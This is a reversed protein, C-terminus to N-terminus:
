VDVYEVELTHEDGLSTVNKVKFMSGRPLLVEAESSHNSHKQVDLAHAGKPLNIVLKINGGFGKKKSTSMFGNDLVVDGAKVTGGFISTMSGSSIGRRLTYPETLKAKRIANDLQKAMVAQGVSLKKGGRLAANLAGYAGDTYSDICAIEGATLPETLESAIKNAAAAKVSKAHEAQQLKDVDAFSPKLETFGGPPAPKGPKFDSVIGTMKLDKSALYDKVVDYTSLGSPLGTLNVFVKKGSKDTATTFLDTTGPTLLKVAQQVAVPSSPAAAIAKNNDKVGKKIAALMAKGAETQSYLKKKYASVMSASVSPSTGYIAQVAANIDPNSHKVAGATMNEKLAAQVFGAANAHKIHKLSEPVKGEGGAKGSGKSGFQGANGPQGRPHQSEKFEDAAIAGHAEDDEDVYEVASGRDGHARGNGARYGDLWERSHSLDQAKSAASLVKQPSSAPNLQPAKGEGGEEGGEAGEEGFAGGGMEGAGSQIDDSMKEIQEDTINTFIGTIDSSQKLEQAYTKQSIGGSNLAVTVTDVVTKALESKEKEDLVRVSPFALDLDDPVEGLESMCLVPYLKELQPRLDTEQERGIKEEYIREDADNSQGLGSITRGWLRTVPIEAAGSIDLQFQQYVDSLGAFTYQTSELGGEAPLPILSQNSMLQNIQEMREALKQKAGQAIGIGSILQALEPYKMGLINARFTLSLINWSMNDRKRIEEYVPELCSIGWWSQAEREPTPVEPGNFRLIRSSHVKFTEMNQNRVEYFEPKNFDTPRNIDTCVEGDPTIGAWRDFPIVGKYSNLKIDELELPEDLYQEQGDIVILAGAGGFLRAWQMTKLLNAKTYTKRVVKEINGIDEPSIDSTLRPWARIMDGAPVDVIRRSIWHNRYLTILKWYDYSFRVLEYDASEALNPTGFGTRAAM